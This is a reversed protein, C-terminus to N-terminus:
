GPPLAGPALAEVEAPTLFGTVAAGEAEQWRRIAERTRGGFIGDAHGQYFGRLNLSRQIARRAARSLRTEIAALAAPDPAAEPAPRAEASPVAHAVPAAAEAPPAAVPAAPAPGPAPSVRAAAPLVPLPAGADSLAPPPEAPAAARRLPVTRDPLPTLSAGEAGAAARLLAHLEVAEAEAARDLIALAHAVAAGRLLLVPSMGGAPPPAEGTETVTEPLAVAAPVPLAIVAGGEGALDAARAFASLPVARTLLDSARRLALGAPATFDREGLRLVPAAVVVLAVDAQAAAVAFRHLGARLEADSPDDLRETAVGLRRLAEQLADARERGEGVGVILGVATAERAAAAGGALAALLALLALLAPLAAPVRSRM